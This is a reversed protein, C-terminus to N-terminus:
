LESFSLSYVYNIQKRKASDSAYFLYRLIQTPNKEECKKCFHKKSKNYGFLNISSNERTLLHDIQMHVESLRMFYQLCFKHINQLCHILDSNDQPHPHLYPYLFSRCGDLYNTLHRHNSEQPFFIMFM